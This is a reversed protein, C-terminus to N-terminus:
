SAGGTPEVARRTQPAAKGVVGAAGAGAGAGSGLNHCPRKRGTWVPWVGAPM